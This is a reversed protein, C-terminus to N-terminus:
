QRTGAPAADVLADFCEREGDAAVPRFCSRVVSKPSAAIMETYVYTEADVEDVTRVDRAPGGATVDLRDGIRTGWMRAWSAGCKESYRLEVHAGTVTRYAALIAADVGCYMRMPDRGECAAGLCRPTLLYRSPASLPQDATATRDPALLTLTVGGAILACVSTLVVFLGRRRVRSREASMRRQPELLEPSPKGSPLAPVPVAARKSWESEAIDWLALLRGEPERAIRCLDKVAQRPPMAKGNLYREWSSKSYATHEALAALSLGTRAKLERLAATLQPHAATM